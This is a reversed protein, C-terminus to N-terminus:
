NYSVYYRKGRIAFLQQNLQFLEQPNLDNFEWKTSHFINKTPEILADFQGEYNRHLWDWDQRSDQEHFGTVYIPCKTELLGPMSKQWQDMAEPAGLGPHFLFFADLYPDYPMFDQADNLVHFYDTYYILKLQDDVREVHKDEFSLYSQKRRDYYAEPGVFVLDFKTHPMLFSLQMWAHWPLQSEMRAGLIFFRMPRDQWAKTRDQPFMTYRLAAASKLGELTLPGKPNLQYPSYEDLIAAMTIPYTLMKTVVAMNFENEMSYFNRTYFFTYWDLFNTIQDDDARGPFELEPFERGSRLDQEFCNAMKLLKWRESKHYETDAEWAARDAHTPIGSLPCTFNVPRGTVPCRARSKIFAARKRLDDYPSQDLMTFRNEVTPQNPDVPSDLGLLQKFFGRPTASASFMRSTAPRRLM